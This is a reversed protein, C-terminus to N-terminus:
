QPRGSSDFNRKRQKNAQPRPPPPTFPTEEEHDPPIQKDFTQTNKNRRIPKDFIYKHRTRHTEAIWQQRNGDDISPLLSTLVSRLPRFLRRCHVAISPLASPMASPLPHCTMAHCAMPHMGHRPMGYAAIAPLPRCHVAVSPLLSWCLIFCTEM